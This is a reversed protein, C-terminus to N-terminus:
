RGARRTGGSRQPAPPVPRTQWRIRAHGSRTAACGSLLWLAIGAPPASRRTLVKLTATVEGRPLLAGFEHGRRVSRGGPGAVAAARRALHSRAPVFPCVCRAPWIRRLPWSPVSILMRDPVCLRAAKLFGPQGPGTRRRGTWALQYALVPPKGLAKPHADARVIDSPMTLM